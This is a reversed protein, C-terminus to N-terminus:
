HELMELIEDRTAVIPEVPLAQQIKSAYSAHAARSDAIIVFGTDTRSRILRGVAQKIDILAEPLVYHDWSRADVERRALALPDCPQAFPVRAIVVCRLTQGIADFGEWFSKTAFLSANTETVFRERIHKLNRRRDQALLTLDHEALPDKLEEYLYQLDKRNTFLTLVGGSQALLVDFLFSKLQDQYEPRTPDAIDNIIFIKMQNELDFSSPLAINHYTDDPLVDLGVSRDFSEFDDGASLTASTFVVSSHEGLLGQAIIPGMEINAATLEVSPDKRLDRPRYIHASYYVNDLPTGLVQELDVAIMSWGMLARSFDTVAQPLPEDVQEFLTIIENGARVSDTIGEVVILGTSSIAAWQESARLEADIWVDTSTYQRGSSTVMLASVAQTFDSLAHEIRTLISELRALTAFVEEEHAPAKAANRRIQAILGAHPRLFQALEMRMEDSTVKIALQRRAESEVGQAEDLVLYRMPPLLAGSASADRFLLAHNTVVIHSSRARVRAGHVYCLSPYFRCKRKSCELSRAHLTWRADTKWYFNLSEIDGWPHTSIWALAVCVEYPELTLDQLQAELKHLCLYHEYGKLATYRLTGGLAENLLPLEKNMLQDTLTNTKTGIGITINNLQAVMAAPILYALSKGVGTGAEIALHKSESFADNIEVAMDVQEQREEFYPYMTGAIGDPSLACAVEAFDPFTLAECEYADLFDPRKDEKIHRARFARLDLSKPAGSGAVGRQHEAIMAIWAGLPWRKPATLRAMADIIDLDLLSIAVLSLRWLKALAEVDNIARHLGEAKEPFFESVLADQNHARLHPFAIRTIEVSDLWPGPLPECAAEIFSRDFPANHALIPSKGIFARIRPAVDAISPADAVDENTISTLKTIMPSIKVTPRVFTSFVDVIEPGDMRVIAVEIIEDSYPNLGTTEVDLLCIEPEFGFRQTAALAILDTTSSRDTISYNGATTNM